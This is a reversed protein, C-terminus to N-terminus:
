RPESKGSKQEKWLKYTFRALRMGKGSEEILEDLRKVRTEEKKARMVWHTATKRYSAAQKGFFDWAKKNKRFRKEYPASLEATEQEYSYIGTKDARRENFAKLGAPQMLGLKMLREVHRVNVRSWISGPKRPTFRKTWTEKDFSRLAGDIWGYCLAEDLAESYTIGKTSSKGKYLGVWIDRASDHNAKLWKRFEASTKFFIVEKKGSTSKM